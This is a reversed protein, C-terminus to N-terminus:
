RHKDYRLTPVVSMLHALEEENLPLAEAARANESVQTLHSAGAAVTTVAPHALCFQIATQAPSRNTSSLDHIAQKASAVKDSNLDLYATPTKNVLLGKALAGRVIVGINNERLLSLCTEEPRRDLVSYQMMVSSINSRKIYERIVNLRISSIGYHRILGKQKLEEFAEITEDIPDDITGGHLQYLDLYDTQLRRLTDHISSLIYEKSPNWDWGNGNPKLQNGVKSAIIVQDRKDKLAQGVREENKGRQYLDATDFFNIGLEIAKELLTNVQKQNEPLSMCGFSVVSVKLNSNGLTKYQM